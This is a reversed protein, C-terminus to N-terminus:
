CDACPVSTSVRPSFYTVHVIQHATPLMILIPSTYTYSAEAVITNSGAVPLLGLKFSSGDAMVGVPAGKGGCPLNTGSSKCWLVVAGTVPGQTQAPVVSTVRMSLDGVPLPAMLNTAIAFQDNLTAATVNSAEATLDALSTSIKIVDRDAVLLQSLEGMGALCAILLPATLAFELASIGAQDRLYRAFPRVLHKLAM